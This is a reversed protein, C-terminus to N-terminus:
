RTGWGRDQIRIAAWVIFFSLFFLNLVSWLFLYPWYKNNKDIFRYYIVILATVLLVGLIHYLPMVGKTLPAYILARFTMIPTLFSIAVLPFYYFM